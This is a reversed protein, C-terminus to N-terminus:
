VTTPSGLWAVKKPTMPMTKARTNALMPEAKPVAFDPTPITETAIRLGSSMKLDIMGMTIAPTNPMYPMIMEMRMFCPLLHKKIRLRGLDCLRSQIIPHYMGRATMIVIKAVWHRAKERM